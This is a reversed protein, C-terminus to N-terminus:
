YVQAHVDQRTARGASCAFTETMGLISRTPIKTGTVITPASLVDIRYRGADGGDLGAFEYGSREDASAFATHGTNVDMLRVVANRLPRGDPAYATGSITCAGGAAFAGAAQTALILTLAFRHM